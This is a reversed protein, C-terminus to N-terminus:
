KSFVFILCSFRGFHMCCSIQRTAAAAFFAGSCEKGCGATRARLIVRRPFLTCPDGQPMQRLSSAGARVANGRGISLCLIRRSADLSYFGRYYKAAALEGLSRRCPIGRVMKAARCFEGLTRRCCLALM